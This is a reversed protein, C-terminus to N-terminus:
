GDFPAPATYYGSLAHLDLFGDNDFDAFQGGWSWGAKEVMLAPAELGSVLEFAEDTLNRFLSNGRAMQPFRADLGTMQGLIRRGAKSYMNSVYLDQRGDDDYDGWSAGMGFGHDATGTGATVDTFRGAGDNRFLNNPGFDNAVYVDPDGDGDYDAWTSQLTNRFVRLVRADTAVEFRGRGANRLLVNPPGYRNAIMHSDDRNLLEVLTAHDAPSLHDPPYDLRGGGLSQISGAGYTSVYLDLLGDGDYDAAALSSVFRPLGDPVLMEQTEVFRGNENVLYLSPALTRGLVVDPDGDNDFDAFIAAATHDVIALGIEPAIDEFTGDGRNRLLMNAGWRAMVYLDDLGDGDIDVVSLAPHVGMAEPLFHTPELPSAEPNGLHEILKEEQISRRARTLLDPDVAADLVEEFLLRDADVLEVRRPQWEAIRWVGVDGALPPVVQRWVVGLAADVARWGGPRRALGHFEVDAEFLTGSEDVQGRVIEFTAHVFGDLGAFLPRWLRLQGRPVTHTDAGIPHTLRDVGFRPLTEIMAPVAADLPRVTVTDDFLDRSARDPLERTLVGGALMGLDGALALTLDESTNVADWTARLERHPDVVGLARLTGYGGVLLAVTSGLLATRYWASHFAEQSSRALLRGGTLLCAAQFALIPILFLWSTLREDAALLHGLSWQNVLLGTSLLSTGLAWRSGKMSGRDVGHSTVDRGM